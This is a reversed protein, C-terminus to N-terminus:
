KVSLTISFNLVHVEQGEVHSVAHGKVKLNQREKTMHAREVLDAIAEGELCIFETPGMAKKLYECSLDKFILVIKPNIKQIHHMALLGVCLDAGITHAGIYLSRVHNRNRRKYPLIVRAETDAITKIRPRAFFIMPVKTIAFLYLFLYQKLKQKM